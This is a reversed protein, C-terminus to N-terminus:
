VEGPGTQSLRQELEIIRQRCDALEASRSDMEDTLQAIRGLYRHAPHDAWYAGARGYERARDVDDAAVGAAIADTAAAALAAELQRVRLRTAQDHGATGLAAREAALDQIERLYGANQADQVAMLEYDLTIPATRVRDPLLAARPRLDIGFVPVRERAASGPKKRIAPVTYEASGAYVNTM